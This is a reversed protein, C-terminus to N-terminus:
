SWDHERDASGAGGHDLRIWVVVGEAGEMETFGIRLKM